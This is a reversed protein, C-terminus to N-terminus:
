GLDSNYHAREGGVYKCRSRALTLHANGIKKISVRVPVCVPRIHMGILTNGIDIGMDAVVNEVLYPDNMGNYVATGFAGGAKIHPVANVRTLGYMKACEKEVVIARNLHECCQAALFINKRKCFDSVAQFIANATEESGSTGIKEGIVESTSCGVVLIGNEEPHSVEYLEELATTLDKKIQETM